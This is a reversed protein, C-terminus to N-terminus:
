IFYILDHLVCDDELGVFFTTKGGAANLDRPSNTPTRVFSFREDMKFLYYTLHLLGPLSVQVAHDCRKRRINDPDIDGFGRLDHYAGEPNQARM